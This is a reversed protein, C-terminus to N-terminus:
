LPKYTIVETEENFDFFDYDRLVGYVIEADVSPFYKYIHTIMYKAHISDGYKMFGEVAVWYVAYADIGLQDIAYMMKPNDAANGEHKVWKRNKM